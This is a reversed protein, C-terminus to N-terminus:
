FFVAFDNSKSPCIECWGYELMVVASVQCVRIEITSGEGEEGLIGRDEELSRVAVTKHGLPILSIKRPISLMGIGAGNGYM